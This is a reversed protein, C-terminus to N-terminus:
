GGKTMDTIDDIVSGNETTNSYVTPDPINTAVTPDPATLTTSETPITTVPAQTDTTTDPQRRGCGWLCAATIAALALAIYKKM